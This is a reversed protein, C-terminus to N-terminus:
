WRVWDRFVSVRWGTGASVRYRWVGPLTAVQTGINLDSTHSSGSFDGRCLCSDFRPDSARAVSALVVQCVLGDNIHGGVINKSCGVTTSRCSSQRTPRTTLADAWLASSGLNSWAQAPITVARIMGIHCCMFNDSYTRGRFVSSRAHQQSM